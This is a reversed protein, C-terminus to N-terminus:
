LRNFIQAFKIQLFINCKHEGLVVVAGRQAMGKAVCRGLGSGAGTIVVVKGRVSEEEWERRPFFKYLIQLVLAEVWMFILWQISSHMGLM